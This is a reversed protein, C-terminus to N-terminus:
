QSGGKQLQYNFKSKLFDAPDTQVQRLWVARLEADSLETSEVVETQDNDNQNSSPENNIVYDDAGIKGDTM